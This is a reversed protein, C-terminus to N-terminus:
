IGWKDVLKEVDEETLDSVGLAQFLVQLTRLMQERNGQQAAVQLQRGALEGSALRDRLGQEERLRTRQLDDALEVMEDGELSSGVLGRSAAWEEIGRRGTEEQERLGADMAERSSQMLETLYANYNNLWDTVPDPGLVPGGDGGGGGVGGGGGGGGDTPVWPVTDNPPQPEILPPQADGGGGGTGGSGAGPEDDVPFVPEQEGGRYPDRPDYGGGDIAPLDFPLEIPLTTAGGGGAGGYQTSTSYPTGGGTAAGGYAGALEEILRRRDDDSTGYRLAM